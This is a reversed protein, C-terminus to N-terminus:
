SKTKTPIDQVVDEENKEYKKKAEMLKYQEQLLTSIMLNIWGSKNPLNQWFIENSKKIWITSKIKM